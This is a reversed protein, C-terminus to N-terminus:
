VIVPMPCHGVDSLPSNLFYSIKFCTGIKKVIRPHPPWSQVCLVTHCLMRYNSKPLNAKKSEGGGRTGMYSDLGRWVHSIACIDRNKVLHSRCIVTQKWSARACPGVERWVLGPGCGYEATVFGALFLRSEHRINKHRRRLRAPRPNGRSTRRRRSATIM